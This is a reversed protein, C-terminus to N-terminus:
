RLSFSFHLDCLTGEINAPDVLYAGYEGAPVGQLSFNLTYGSNALAPANLAAAVDPRPVSTKIPTSYSQSEGKLVMQLGSAAQGAGNGAWGGFAASAGSNFEAPSVPAQGDHMDLACEKNSAEAPLTGTFPAFTALGDTASPVAAAAGAPNPEHQASQEAPQQKCGTTVLALTIALVALEFRPSRNFKM